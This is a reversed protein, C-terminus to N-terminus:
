FGMSDNFKKITKETWNRRGLELDSLYAASIGMNKALERLGVKEKERIRRAREGTLKPNIVVKTETYAYLKYIAM